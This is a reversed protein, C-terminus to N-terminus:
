SKKSEDIDDLLVTPRREDVWVAHRSDGGRAGVTVWAHKKLVETNKTKRAGDWRLRGERSMDSKGMGGNKVWEKIVSNM